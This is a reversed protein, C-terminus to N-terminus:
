FLFILFVQIIGSPGRLKAKVIGGGCPLVHFETTGNYQPRYQFNMFGDNKRLNATTYRGNKLVQAPTRRFKFTETSIRISVNNRM